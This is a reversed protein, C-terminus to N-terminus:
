ILLVNRELCRFGSQVYVAEIDSNLILSLTNISYERYDM